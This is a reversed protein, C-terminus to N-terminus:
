PYKTTVPSFPILFVHKSRVAVLLTIVRPAIPYGRDLKVPAKRVKTSFYLSRTITSAVGSVRSSLSKCVFRWSTTSMLGIFFSIIQCISCRRSKNLNTLPKMSNLICRDKIITYPNWPSTLQSQSAHHMLRVYFMVRFQLLILEVQLCSKNM